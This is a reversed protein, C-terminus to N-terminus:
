QRASSDAGRLTAAYLDGRWNKAGMPSCTAPINWSWLLDAKAEGEVLVVTRGYALAEILEPLRYLVRRTDELNYIWEGPRDPDPRRQPFDKKRKGDKGPVYSGDPNQYEVREVQYVVAGHADHYDFRAVVIRKASPQAPKADLRKVAPRGALTEVADEFGVGDLHRVLAIVDGGRQCGRCNWLQKKVNISFRDDGGCVPCPGSRENGGRLKIGRRAVEDEIRAARAEELRHDPAPAADVARRTQILAELEICVACGDGEEVVALVVEEVDFADKKWPAVPEEELAQRYLACYHGDVPVEEIKPTTWELGSM